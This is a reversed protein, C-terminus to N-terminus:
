AFAQRQNFIPLKKLELPLIVAVVVVGIVLLQTLSLPTLHMLQNIAPVYMGALLFILAALAWIDMVRNSLLGISAITEQDSRSVYAMVIHGIMWATFASTQALATNASQYYSTLFVGTVAAALVLSKVVMDTIEPKGFIPRQPDRPPRTYINKEKPEAVFGASAALDMFLELLIIQIPSFPMPVGLIVPVLFILVLAMKICLYYKMGKQMNDFLGRSEFIGDTITKYNDDALVVDAAERAVDTGRMGMAIGTDAGKLALVDNIGDGTAAVVEHNQQLAKVIRYKQEPTTRAFVSTTKVADYLESDSMADLQAGTVVTQDSIGVQRAISAATAPHDGTVMITRIGATAAQAITAKAELRPADEFSVLGSFTMGTELEAFDKQIDTAALEKCAVGVVRRGTRTQSDLEDSAGAPVETCAAFIEEPAGSKYLRYSGSDQRIVAISKDGNGLQRERVIAPSATYGCEQAKRQIEQDIPSLAFEPLALAANQLVDQQPYVDVVKQKGETLTGTKDTVIVTTNGLSEAARLKKVLLNRKSLNYSGVALVMTVVMPLEEPIVAFALALGTTIMVRWDQGRIFGLLPIAVAFFVAVYALQISLKNMAEQLPTEPVEIEKAQAAITGMRTAPGTATVLAQGEGSVVITSAYLPDGAAKKVAASEGTLAAEDVELEIAEILRADAAIKAGAKLILVDDPVVDVAKVETPKGDRLVVAKLAALDDLANIAKDARMDTLTESVIMLFIVVFITIADGPKGFIGYLVGTVVLLIMMPERIIDYFVKWFRIPEKKFIENPGFKERLVKAQQSTLGPNQTITAKETIM